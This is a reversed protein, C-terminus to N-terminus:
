TLEIHRDYGRASLRAPAGPATTDNPIDDDIKVDDLYLTRAQGDDLGQLITITQVRRPDFRPDNTPKVNGVFSAFPLRARVWKRAPLKDLSGTLRISPTGEGNADALYILPAADAPLDTESYLWFSLTAGSFDLGGWHKRLDLSVRWEGGRHSRWKLRLCNPPTVCRQQAVPIKGDVLELESPSVFSRQSRYYSRDPLSNDFVVHRDYEWQAWQAFSACPALMTLAILLVYLLKQITM